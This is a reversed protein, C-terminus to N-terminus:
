VTGNCQQRKIKTDYMIALPMFLWLIFSLGMIGALISIAVVYSGSADRIMGVIPGIIIFLIGSILKSAGFVKSLNEIGMLQVMVVNYLSLNISLGIGWPVMVALMGWLSTMWPFVLATSVM